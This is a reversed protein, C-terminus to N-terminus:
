NFSIQNLNNLVLGMCMKRESYLNLILKKISSLYFSFRFLCDIACKRLLELNWYFFRLCLCVMIGRVCMCPRDSEIRMCSKGCPKYSSYCISRWYSSLECGTKLPTRRVRDKNKQAINQQDNNLFYIM